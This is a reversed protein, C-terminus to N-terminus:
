LLRGILILMASGISMAAIYLEVTCANWHMGLIAVADLLKCYESIDDSFNGYCDFFENIMMMMM